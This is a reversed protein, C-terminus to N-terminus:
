RVPGIVLGFLMVDFLAAFALVLPLWAGPDHDHRTV